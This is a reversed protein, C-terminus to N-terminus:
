RLSASLNGRQEIRRRKAVLGFAMAHDGDDAKNDMIQMEISFLEQADWSPQLM